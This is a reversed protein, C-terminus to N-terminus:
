LAQRSALHAAILGKPHHSNNVWRGISLIAAMKASLMKLHMKMFSFNHIEMQIESLNAGLPGISLLDANTWSIAQWRVPSLGNGSGISVLNVSTASPPSWHVWCASPDLIVDQCPISEANRARWDVPSNGDYLAM